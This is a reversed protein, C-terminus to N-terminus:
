CFKEFAGLLVYCAAYMLALGSEGSLTMLFVQSYRQWQIATELFAPNHPALSVSVAYVQFILTGFLIFKRWPSPLAM